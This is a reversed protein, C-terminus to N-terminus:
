YPALMTILKVHRFYFYANQADSKKLGRIGLCLKINTSSGAAMSVIDTLDIYIKKWDDSAPLVMMDQQPITGIPNKFDLYTTAEGHDCWYEMEWYQRVGQGYLNVERSIVNFFDVSDELAIRGVSEGSLKYIEMPARNISDRPKFGTTQAFTELIPFSVSPAYEFKLDSLRYVGEKDLTVFREESLVFYYPVTNLTVNPVRTCPTVRINNKERSYDPLLPITCPVEPRLQWYGLERGNLSVLVEKFEQHGIIKLEEKDYDTEHDKNFNDTNIKFDELYLLLYAPPDIKKCSFTLFFIVLFLFPYSKKM